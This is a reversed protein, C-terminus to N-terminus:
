GGDLPGSDAPATYGVALLGWRKLWRYLTAKGVKLRRAAHEVDGRTARLAAAVAERKVDDIPRIAELEADDIAKIRIEPAADVPNIIGDLAKRWLRWARSYTLGLVEATDQLRDGALRQEVLWRLDDPLKAVRCLLREVAERREALEHPGPDPSTEAGTLPCRPALGRGRNRRIEDVIEWKDARGAWAAIRKAQAVEDSTLCSV